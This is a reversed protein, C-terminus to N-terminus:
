LTSIVVFIVMSLILAIMNAYIIRDSWRKVYENEKLRMIAAVVVGLLAYLLPNLYYIKPFLTVISEKKIMFHLIPLSLFSIIAFIFGLITLGRLILENM